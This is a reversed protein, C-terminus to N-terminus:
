RRGLGGRRYRFQGPGRAGASRCATSISSSRTRRPTSIPTRPLPSASIGANWRRRARMVNLFRNINAVLAEPPRGVLAREFHDQHGSADEEKLYFALALELRVRM